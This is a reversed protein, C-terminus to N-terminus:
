QDAEKNTIPTKTKREHLAPIAQELIRRVDSTRVPGLGNKNDPTGVMAFAIYEEGDCDAAVLVLKDRVATESASGDSTGSKAGVILCGAISFGRLTGSPHSVPALLLRDLDYEQDGSLNGRFGLVSGADQEEFVVPLSSSDFASAALSRILIAPSGVIKTGLASNRAFEVEDLSGHFAAGVEEVCQRFEAAPAQSVWEAFSSNESKGMITFPDSFHSPQSCDTPERGGPDSISFAQNRCFREDPGPPALRILCGLLGVKTLSGPSRAMDQLEGDVIPGWVMGTDSAVVSEIELAGSERRRAIVVLYDLESACGEICLEPNMHDAISGNLEGKVIAAVDHQGASTITSTLHLPREAEMALADRLVLTAGPLADEAWDLPDPRRDGLAEIVPTERAALEAVSQEFEESDIVGRERLKILCKGAVAVRGEFRKEASDRMAKPANLSTVFVPWRYGAAMICATAAGVEAGTEGAILLTCIENAASRSMTIGRGVCAPGLSAYLELEDHPQKGFFVSAHAINSLKDRVSPSPNGNMEEWVSLAPGTGGKTGGSFIPKYKGTLNIGSVAKASGHRYEGELAVIAESILERSRGQFSTGVLAPKEDCRHFFVPYDDTLAVETTVACDFREQALQTHSEDVFYGTIGAAMGSTFEPVVAHAAGTITMLAVSGLLSRRLWGKPWARGQWVRTLNDRLGYAGGGIAGARKIIGAGTQSLDPIRPTFGLTFSKSKNRRVKKNGPAKLGRVRLREDRVEVLLDHISPAVDPPVAAEADAAKETEVKDAKKNTTSISHYHKMIQTGKNNPAAGSPQGNFSAIM